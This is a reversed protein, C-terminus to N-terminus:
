YCNKVVYQELERQRQAQLKLIIGDEIDFKARELSDLAQRFYKVDVTWTSAQTALNNLSEARQQRFLDSEAM